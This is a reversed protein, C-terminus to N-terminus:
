DNNNLSVIGEPQFNTHLHFNEFLSACCASVGVPLRMLICLILLIVPIPNLECSNAFYKFSISCHIGFIFFEGSIRINLLQVHTLGNWCKFEM